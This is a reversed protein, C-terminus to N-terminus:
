TSHVGVSAALEAFLDRDAPSFVGSRLRNLSPRHRNFVPNELVIARREERLADASSAYGLTVVLRTAEAWWDARRRHDRLRIRLDTGMGVYLLPGSSYVRYVYPRRYSAPTQTQALFVTMARHDFEVTETV